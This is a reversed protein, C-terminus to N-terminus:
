SAACRSLKTFDPGYLDPWGDTVYLRRYYASPLKYGAPLTIILKRDILSLASVTVIGAAIPSRAFATM